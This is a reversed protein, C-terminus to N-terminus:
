VIIIEDDDPIRQFIFRVQDSNKCSLVARFEGFFDSCMYSIDDRYQSECAYLVKIGSNRKSYTEIYM